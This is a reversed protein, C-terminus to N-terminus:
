LYKSWKRTFTHRLYHRFAHATVRKTIQSINSAKKIAANVSDENLHHRRIVGSRPDKSLSLSPFIYQWKFEKHANKYKKELAYPLYVSGYRESLDKEHLSKVYMLQHLLNKELFKPIMTVRDVAGKGHRVTLQFQTIDLDKVRLRLCEICRLGSGYLLQVILWHVGKLCNIIDMVEERNLVVPIRKPKKAKIASSFDGLKLHLVNKYLFVIANLAQNQTSASVKGKVALWTLYEEIERAGMDRPHRYNNFQVFRKVWDLYAKETRISYHKVRIADSIQELLRKKM